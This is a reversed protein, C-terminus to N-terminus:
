PPRLRTRRARVIMAIADTSRLRRAICGSAPSRVNEVLSMKRTMSLFRAVNRRVTMTVRARTRNTRRVALASVSAFATNASMPAPARTLRAFPARAFLSPTM